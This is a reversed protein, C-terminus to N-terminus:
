SKAGAQKLLTVLKGINESDTDSVAIYCLGGADWTELNFSLQRALSGNGLERDLESTDKTIFISIHHQQYQYLLQAAPAHEFYVLRAGLLTFPTGQLEPLNFTFPVKGQFWPKVTHRDSSVVDVPNASALTSVHMDTLQALVQDRQRVQANHTWLLLVIAVAAAVAAFQPVGFWSWRHSRKAHIQTLVKKRFDPSTTYRKGASHTLRKLQVGRVADAACSPCGRLHADLRSMEESSLEADVYADIKGQWLECSM